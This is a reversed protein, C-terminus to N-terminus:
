KHHLKDFMGRIESSKISWTNIRNLLYHSGQTPTLLKTGNTSGLDTINLKGEENVSMKLHDRSVAMAFDDTEDVHSRGINTGVGPELVAVIEGRSEEDKAFRNVTVRSQGTTTDTVRVIALWAGAETGLELAGILDQKIGLARNEAGDLVDFSYVNLEIPKGPIVSQEQGLAHLDGYIGRRFERPSNQGDIPKPLAEIDKIM